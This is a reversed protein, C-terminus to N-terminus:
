WIIPSYYTVPAPGYFTTLPAPAYYTTVPAPAYYPTAYGVYPRYVVRRGFLGVRAPYYGVVPAPGVVVQAQATTASGAVMLGAAAAVGLMLWRLRRVM